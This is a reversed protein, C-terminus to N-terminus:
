GPQQALEVYQRKLNDLIRDIHDKEEDELNGVTKEVLMSLDDIVVQAQPLNVQKTKTIPNELIGMSLLAQYGLKQVFLRFDGGPLSLEEASTPTDQSM